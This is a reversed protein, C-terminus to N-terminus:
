PVSSDICSKDFNKAGKAGNLNGVRGAAYGGIECRIGFGGNSAETLNPKDRAVKPVGGTPALDVGSNRSVFIGDQGNGSLANAGIMAHSVRYVQVGARKNNSITNGVIRANATHAVSIGNGGNNRITNPFLMSDTPSRFGMRASSSDEVHIGDAPNNQITNGLIHASSRQVVAVGHQGTSQITNGDINATGGLSVAIGHLGGSVTFAKITIGRGNVTITNRLADPGRIEAKGQGDLTIRQVDEPIALHENCTGSVVITDGPKLGGIVGGITAGANCDVTVTAAEAGPPLLWLLAVFGVLRGMAITKTGKM